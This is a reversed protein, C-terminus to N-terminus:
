VCKLKQDPFSDGAKPGKGLNHFILRSGNGPSAERKRHNQDNKSGKNRGILGKEGPRDQRIRSKERELSRKLGTM